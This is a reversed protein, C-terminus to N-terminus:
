QANDSKGKLGKVRIPFMRCIIKIQLRLYQSIRMDANTYRLSSYLSRMVTDCSKKESNNECVNKLIQMLKSGHKM